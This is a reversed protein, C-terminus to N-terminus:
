TIFTAEVVRDVKKWWTKFVSLLMLSGGFEFFYFELKM